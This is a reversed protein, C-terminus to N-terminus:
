QPNNIFDLIFQFYEDRRGLNLLIMDAFNGRYKDHLIILKERLIDQHKTIDGDFKECILGVIEPDNVFDEVQNTSIFDLIFKSNAPCIKINDLLIKRFQKTCKWKIFDSYDDELQFFNGISLPQQRYM